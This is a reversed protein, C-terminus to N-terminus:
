VLYCSASKSCCVCVCHSFRPMLRCSSPLYLQLVCVSLFAVHRQNCLHTYAFVRVYVTWMYLGRDRSLSILTSSQACSTPCISLAALRPCLMVSLMNTNTHWNKTYTGALPLINRSSYLTETQWCTSYLLTRKLHRLPGAYKRSLLTNTDTCSDVFVKAHPWWPFCM